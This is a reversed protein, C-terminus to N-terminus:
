VVYTSRAKLNEWCEESCTQCRRDEVRVPGAWPVPSEYGPLEKSYLGSMQEKRWGWKSGKKEKEAWAKERETVWVGIKQRGMQLAIERGEEQSIM